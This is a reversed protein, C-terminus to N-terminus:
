RNMEVVFFRTQDSEGRSGLLLKLSEDFQGNIVDLVPVCIRLEIDATSDFLWTCRQKKVLYCTIKGFISPEQPQVDHCFRQYSTFRRTWIGFM